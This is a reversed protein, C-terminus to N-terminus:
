PRIILRTYPLSKKFFFDHSLYKFHQTKKLLDQQRSRQEDQLSRDISHMCEDDGCQPFDAHEDHWRLIFRGSTDNTSRDLLLCAGITSLRIDDVVGKASKGAVIAPRRPATVM